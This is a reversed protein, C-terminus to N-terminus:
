APPLAAGSKPWVRVHRRWRPDIEDLLSVLKAVADVASTRNSFAFSAMPRLRFTGVGRADEPLVPYREALAAIIARQRRLRGPTPFGRASVHRVHRPM